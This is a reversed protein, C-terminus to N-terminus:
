TFYPSKVSRQPIREQRLERQNLMGAAASVPLLYKLWKLFASLTVDSNSASLSSAMKLGFMQGTSQDQPMETPVTTEAQNWVSEFVTEKQRKMLMQKKGPLLLSTPLRWYSIFVKKPTPLFRQQTSASMQITMPFLRCSFWNNAKHTIKLSSLVGFVIFGSGQLKQLFLFFCCSSRLILGKIQATLGMSDTPSQVWFYLCPNCFFFFFTGTRLFLRSVVSSRTMWFIESLLLNISKIEIECKKHLIVSYMSRFHFNIQAICVHRKRLSAKHKWYSIFLSM